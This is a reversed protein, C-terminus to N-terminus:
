LKIFSKQLLDNSNIVRIVYTGSPMSSTNILVDNNINFLVENYLIRGMIDLIQVSVKDANNQFHINLIDTVPNPYISININTFDNENIGVFGSNNLLPSSSQLRFDPNSYNYPDRILLPIYSSLTDNNFSTTLYWSRIDFTSGSTTTFYNGPMAAMTTYKVNLIGNTANSECASGDIMLGDQWGIFLSNYIDIGTNRRLHMARKYNSNITTSADKKPGLISVNSFVASTQPLNTSGSADNDSEFANSGSVDAINPERLAVAYQIMGSFGYDTDFDDDWTGLTILHKANVCGGFWEFADDGSYSIQIYDINTNKGVGGMTLGNIEKDPQFPIGPFEIRVYNLIGSNDNDNTGGYYSRPGGEIQAEGGPVNIKANGCLIIGGWDGYNRSGASQNSTFVIPESATGQAILKAGREIILTGKSNKDGRIITGPQI